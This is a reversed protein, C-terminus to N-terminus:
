WTDELFSMRSIRCFVVLKMGIKQVLIVAVIVDDPYIPTSGQESWITQFLQDFRTFLAIGNAPMRVSITDIFLIREAFIKLFILVLRHLLLHIGISFFAVGSM